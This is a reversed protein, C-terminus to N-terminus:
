GATQRPTEPLAATFSRDRRVAAAARGNSLREARAPIMPGSVSGTKGCCLAERAENRAELIIGERAANIPGPPEPQADGRAPRGNLLLGRQLFDADDWGPTTRHRM